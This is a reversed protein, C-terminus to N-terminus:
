PQRQVTIQRFGGIGHLILGYRGGILRQYSSKKFLADAGALGGGIECLLGPQLSYREVHVFAGDHRAAENGFQQDIPQCGQGAGPVQDQAIWGVYVRGAHGGQGGFVTGLGLQGQGSAVIAHVKHALQKGSSGGAHTLICHDNQLNAVFASVELGSEGLQRNEPEIGTCTFVLNQQHSPLGQGGLAPERCLLPNRAVPKNCGKSPKCCGQGGAKERWGGLAPASKESNRIIVRLFTVRRRPALTTSSLTEAVMLGPSLTPRTPRLPAPLDLRNAKSLPLSCSSPPSKQMGVLQRMASTACFMGSGPWDAVSKTNSPSVRRASTWCCNSSASALSAPMAM